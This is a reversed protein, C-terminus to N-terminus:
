RLIVNWSIAFSIESEGFYLPKKSISLDVGPNVKSSTTIRWCYALAIVSPSVLAAVKRLSVASPEGFCCISMVDSLWPNDCNDYSSNIDSRSVSADWLDEDGVGGGVSYIVEDKATDLLGM